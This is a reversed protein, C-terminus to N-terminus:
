PLGRQATKGGELWAHLTGERQARARFVQDAEALRRKVTSLSSQTVAAVEELEMGMLYRLCFVTRRPQSMTDLVRYVSRLAHADPHVDVPPDPLHEKPLFVLWRSRQRRRITKHAVHVAITTLWPKLRTADTLGGLSRFAQLFVEQILDPLEADPGLVHLLVARVHSAFREYFARGADPHRERLAHVLAADDGRFPIAVLSSARQSVAKLGGNERYLARIRCCHNMIRHVGSWTPRQPWCVGQPSSTSFRVRCGRLDVRFRTTGARPRFGSRHLFVAPVVRGPVCCPGAWRRPVLRVPARM